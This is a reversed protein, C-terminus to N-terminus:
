YLRIRFHPLNSRVLQFAMSIAFQYSCRRFYGGQRVTRNMENGTGLREMPKISLQTFSFEPTYRSRIGVQSDDPICPIGCTSKFRCIFVQNNGIRSIVEPHALMFKRILLDYREKSGMLYGIHFKLMDVPQVNFLQTAPNERIGK